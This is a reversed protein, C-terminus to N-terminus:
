QLYKLRLYKNKYKLYKKRKDDAAAAASVSESVQEVAPKLPSKLPPKLSLGLLDVKEDTIISLMTTKYQELTKINTDLKTLIIQEYYPIKLDCFLKDLIDIVNIKIKSIVLNYMSVGTSSSLDHVKIKKEMAIIEDPNLLDINKKCHEVIKYVISLIRNLYEFELPTIGINQLLYTSNYITDDHGVINGILNSFYDIKKFDKNCKKFHRTLGRNLLSYTSIKLLSLLDPVPVGMDLSKVSNVYQKKKSKLDADFNFEYM